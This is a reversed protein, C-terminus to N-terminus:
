APWHKGISNILNITGTCPWNCGPCMRKKQSALDQQLATTLVSGKQYTKWSVHGFWVCFNKETILEFVCVTQEPLWYEQEAWRAYIIKGSAICPTCFILPLIIVWAEHIFRPENMVTEYHIFQPETISMKTIFSSRNMWTPFIMYLRIHQTWPMYQWSFFYKKVAGAKWVLFTWLWFIFKMYRDTILWFFTFRHNSWCQQAITHFWFDKWFSKLVCEALSRWFILITCM